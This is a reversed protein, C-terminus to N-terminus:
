NPICNIQYSKRASNIKRIEKGAENTMKVLKVLTSGNYSNTTLPEWHAQYLGPEKRAGGSKLYGELDDLDHGSLLFEGFIDSSSLKRTKPFFGTLITPLVCNALTGTFSKSEPAHSRIRNYLERLSYICARIWDEEYVLKLNQVKINLESDAKELLVLESVPSTVDMGLIIRCLDDTPGRCLFEHWDDKSPIHFNMLHVLEEFTKVQSFVYKRLLYDGEQAYSSTVKYTVDAFAEYLKEKWKLNESPQIEDADFALYYESILASHNSLRIRELSSMKKLVGDIQKYILRSQNPSHNHQNEDMFFTDFVNMPHEYDDLIFEHLGISNGYITFFDNWKVTPMLLEFAHKLFYIAAISSAEKHAVNAKLHPALPFSADTKKTGQWRIKFLEVLSGFIEDLRTQPLNLKVILLDILEILQQFALSSEIKVFLDYKGTENPLNKLNFLLVELSHKVREARPEM